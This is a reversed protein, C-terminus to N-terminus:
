WWQKKKQFSKQSKGVQWQPPHVPLTTYPTGRPDAKGTAWVNNARGQAKSTKGKGKKGKGKNKTYPTPDWGFVKKRDQHYGLDGPQLRIGDLGEYKALEDLDMGVKDELHRKILSGPEERRPSGSVLPGGGDEDQPTGPCALHPDEWYPDDVVFPPEKGGKGKGKKSNKSRVRKFPHSKKGGKQKSKGGKDKGAGKGKGAWKPEPPLGKKGSGKGPQAWSRAPSAQRDLHRAPPHSGAAVTGLAVSGRPPPQKPRGGSSQSGGQPQAPPGGKSKATNVAKVIKLLRLRWDRKAEGDFKHNAAKAVHFASRAEMLVGGQAAQQATPPLNPQRPGLLPM